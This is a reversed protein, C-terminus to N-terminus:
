CVGFCSFNFCSLMTLSVSTVSYNKRLYLGGQGYKAATRIVRDARETDKEWGAKQSLCACAKQMRQCVEFSVIREPRESEGKVEGVSGLDAYLEWLDGDNTVQNPTRLISLLNFM